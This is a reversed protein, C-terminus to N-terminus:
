GRYTRNLHAHSEESGTGACGLGDFCSEPDELIFFDGISSVAGIKGDITNYFTIGSDHVM